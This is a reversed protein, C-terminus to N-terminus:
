FTNFQLLMFNSVCNNFLEEITLCGEYLNKLETKLDSHLFYQTQNSLLGQSSFFLEMKLSLVQPRKVNLRSYLMQVLFLSFSETASFCLCFIKANIKVQSTINLDVKCNLLIFRMQNWHCSYSKSLSYQIEMCDCFSKLSDTRVTFQHYYQFLKWCIAQVDVPLVESATKVGDQTLVSCLKRRKTRSFKEQVRTLVSSAGKKKLEGVNTNTSDAL